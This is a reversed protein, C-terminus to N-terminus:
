GEMVSLDPAPLAVSLNGGGPLLQTLLDADGAELAACLASTLFSVIRWYNVDEDTKEAVFIRAM